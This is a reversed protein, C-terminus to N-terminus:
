HLAVCVLAGAREFTLRCLRGGSVRFHLEARSGDRDSSARALPAGLLRWWPEEESASVLGTPMADADPISTAVLSGRGPDASVLIRGIDFTLLFSVARDPETSGVPPMRDVKLLQGGAGATREFLDMTPDRKGPSLTEM